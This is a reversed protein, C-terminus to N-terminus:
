NNPVGRDETHRVVRMKKTVNGTTFEEVEVWVLVRHGILSKVKRAMALGEPNDTRETRVQECGAPVGDTARDTGTHLTIVGRTSSQEKKVDRVIGSFVKCKSIQEAAKAQAVVFGTMSTAFYADLAAPLAAAVAAAIQDGQAVDAPTQTSM